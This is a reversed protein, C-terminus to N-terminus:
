AKGIGHHTGAEVAITLLSDNLAFESAGHGAYWRLPESPAQKAKRRQVFEAKHLAGSSKACTRGSTAQDLGMEAIFRSPQAAVTMETGQAPADLWRWTRQARTIGVYMLRREEQLRQAMDQEDSEEEDIKFPLMGETVGVLM